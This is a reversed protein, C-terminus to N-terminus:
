ARVGERGWGVLREGLVSRALDAEEEQQLRPVLADVERVLGDGLGLGLLGCEGGVKALYSAVVRVRLGEGQVRSRVRIRVGVGVKVRM